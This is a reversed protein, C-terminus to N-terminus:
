PLRNGTVITVLVEGQARRGIVDLMCSMVDDNIHNGLTGIEFM